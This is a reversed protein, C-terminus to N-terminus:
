NFFNTLYFILSKTTTATGSWWAVNVTFKKTNPDLTGSGAIDYNGDRYVDSVSFTRDFINDIMSATTTSQWKNNAFILHYSTGVSMSSINTWNTDRIMRVGESAEELLFGARTSNLIRRNLELSTNAVVMIAFIATSIVAVAVVIEIIGFGSNPQLNYTTPQLDIGGKKIKLKEKKM